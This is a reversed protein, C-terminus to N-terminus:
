FYRPRENVDGDKFLQKAPAAAFPSIPPQAELSGRHKAFLERAASKNSSPSGGWQRVRIRRTNPSICDIVLERFKKGASM